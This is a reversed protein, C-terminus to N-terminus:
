DYGPTVEMTKPDCAWHSEIEYATLEALGDPVPFLTAETANMSCLANAPNIRYKM